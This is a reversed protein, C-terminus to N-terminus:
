QCVGFQILRHKLRLSRRLLLLKGLSVKLGPADDCPPPPETLDAIRAHTSCTKPKMFVEIPLLIVRFIPSSLFLAQHLRFFRVNLKMRYRWREFLARAIAQATDLVYGDSSWIANSSCKYAAKM